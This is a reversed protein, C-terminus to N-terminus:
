VLCYNKGFAYVRWPGGKAKAPLTILVSVLFFSFILPSHGQWPANHSAFAEPKAKSNVKDNSGPAGLSSFKYLPSWFPIKTERLALKELERCGLNLLCLLFLLELMGTDVTSPETGLRVQPFPPVSPSPPAQGLLLLLCHHLVPWGVARSEGVM